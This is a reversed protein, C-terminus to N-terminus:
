AVTKIKEAAVAVRNSLPQMVDGALKLVTESTKAADAIMDDFSKRMFDSQMQFLETPTKASAFGKFAATAQEFGKRATEAAHQGLTEAAKAAVRSSEVVAEINGKNLDGLEELMKASREMAAKARDNMEAFMAQARAQADAAFGTATEAATHVTDTMKPGETPAPAVGAAPLTQDTPAAAAPVAPAPVPDAVATVPAAPEAKIVQAKVPEAKVPEAKAPATKASAAKVPAAPIPQAPAAPKPAAVKAVPKEAVAATPAAKAAKPTGAKSGPKNTRASM